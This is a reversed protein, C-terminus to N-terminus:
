SSRQASRIAAVVRDPTRSSITWSTAPDDADINPVRVVGDIGGRILYWGRPDLGTGRARAADEGTLEEPDGLLAVPIHTRGARLEGDSVVIVPALGILVAVLVVAAILGLGLAVAQNIRVFVLSVMPAVIGAGALIKLSPALRERYIPARTRRDRAPAKM